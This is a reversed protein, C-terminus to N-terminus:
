DGVEFQVSNTAASIESQLADTDALLSNVFGLSLTDERDTSPINDVNTNLELQSITDLNTTSQLEDFMPHSAISATLDQVNKRRTARAAIESIASDNDALTNELALELENMQEYARAMLPLDASSPSKQSALEIFPMASEPFGLNLLRDAFKRLNTSDLLEVIQDSTKTAIKVFQIDTAQKDVIEYVTNALDIKEPVLASELENIADYYNGSKALSLIHARKLIEKDDSDTLERVYTAALLVIDESIPTDTRVAVEIFKALALPSEPTNQTVILKLEETPVQGADSSITTRAREFRAESSLPRANRELVRISAQASTIDGTARFARSIQPALSQRLHTPLRNLAQLIPNPDPVPSKNEPSRSLFSWLAIDSDCHEADILSTTTAVGALIEAIAQVAIHSTSGDTDLNLISLAESGFGFYSYVKALELQASTNLQDFEGYLQNRYKSIAIDFDEYDGWKTIDFESSHECNFTMLLEKKMKQTEAFNNTNLIQINPAPVDSRLEFNPNNQVMATQSAVSDAKVEEDVSPALLGRTAAHGIQKALRQELANLQISSNPPQVLQREETSTPKPLSNIADSTELGLNSREVIIPLDTARIALPEPERVADETTLSNTTSDPTFPATQLNLVDFLSNISDSWDEVVGQDQATLTGADKSISSIDFVALEGQLVNNSVTCDCALELILQDERVTANSLRERSIRDFLRAIDYGEIEGNPSIIVGSGNQSVTWSEISRSDIVIRTFNEHDGSRVVLPASSASTALLCFVFTLFIRM